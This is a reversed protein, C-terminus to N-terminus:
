SKFYSYSDDNIGVHAPVGISDFFVKVKDRWCDPCVIYGDVFDDDDKDTWVSVITIMNHCHGNDTIDEHRWAPTKDGYKISLAKCIFCQSQYEKKIVHTETITTERDEVLRGGALFRKETKKL